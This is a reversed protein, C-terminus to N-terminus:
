IECRCLRGSLAGFRSQCRRTPLGGISPVVGRGGSATHILEQSLQSLCLSLNRIELLLPLVQYGLLHGSFCL